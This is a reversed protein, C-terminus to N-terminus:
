FQVYMFTIPQAMLLLSLALLVGCVLAFWRKRINVLNAAEAVGSFALLVALLLVILLARLPLPNLVHWIGFRGFGVLNKLLNGLYATNPSVFFTLSFIMLIFFLGRALIAPKIKIRRRNAWGDLNVLAGMIAGWGIFGWGAGHWLGVLTMTVLNAMTQVAGKHHLGFRKLLSRSLPFFLYIRFWSSLSIHWRQWFDQFGASLFPNNFNPPLTIGFLQGLGLVIDTYGSFDFYIQMAYTFIYLWAIAMGADAAIPANRYTVLSAHLVDAILLKKALGIILFVMGRYVQDHDLRDPLHRLQAGTDQFSSIPGASIQLFLGSFTIFSLWDHTAPYQKLKIDVLYGIHKFVFFSLGLPLALRLLPVVIPLNVADALRNTNLAGFDWYKFFALAILNLIIGAAFWSRRAAYFTLLSLGLLLPIFQIGALAYFLYSAIALLWLKYEPKRCAKWYILLTIPLFLFFFPHSTLTM